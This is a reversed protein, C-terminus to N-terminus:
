VDTEGEGKLRDRVECQSTPELHVEEKALGRVMSEIRYLAEVALMAVNFSNRGEAIIPLLTM